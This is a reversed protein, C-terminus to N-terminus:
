SSNNRDITKQIIIKPDPEKWDIKDKERDWWMILTICCYVMRQAEYQSVPIRTNHSIANRHRILEEINEQIYSPFLSIRPEKKNVNNILSRTQKTDEKIFDLIEKIFIIIEQNVKTEDLNSKKSLNNLTKYLKNLDHASHEKSPCHNSIKSNILDYTQGLTKKKPIAERHFTEYIQTLYNEAILGLISICYDYKEFRFERIIQKFCAKVKKDHIFHPYSIKFFSFYSTFVIEEPSYEPRLKIDKIKGIKELFDKLKELQSYSLSCFSFNDDYIKNQVIVGDKLRFINDKEVMTDLKEPYVEYKFIEYATKYKEKIKDIDLIEIIPLYLYNIDSDIDSQTRTEEMERQYIYTFLNFIFSFDRRLKLLEEKDNSFLQSIKRPIRNQKKNSSLKHSKKKTVYNEIEHEIDQSIMGEDIWFFNLFWVGKTIPKELYERIEVVEDTDLVFSNINCDEAVNDEVTDAVYQIDELFDFLEDNYTEDSLSFKDM